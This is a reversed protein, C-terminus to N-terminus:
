LDSGGWLVSYAECHVLVSSYASLDVGAPVEYEQVGKTKKLEGINLAGQTATKGTVDALSQPSLFIKLDPGGAARFTDGFVLFTKGERQVLEWDGKLKKSKKVFTGTTNTSAESTEAMAVPTLVSIASFSATTLALALCFAKLHTM